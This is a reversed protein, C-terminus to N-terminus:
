RKVAEVVREKGAGDLVIEGDTYGITDIFLSLITAAQHPACEVLVKGGPVLCHFAQTALRPYLDLGNRGGALAIQPEGWGLTLVRVTEEDSLYPPNATVVHVGGKAGALLDRHEIAVTVSEIGSLHRVANERAFDLAEVSLDSLRVDIGPVSGAIERAISIGVAGSGTCCDRIVVPEGDRVFRSSELFMLAREVLLETEPRPILVGPGVAFPTSWFEKTGTIYAIPAGDARREIASVLRREGDRDILTGVESSLEALLREKGHGSVWAFLVLADLWPTESKALSRAADLM